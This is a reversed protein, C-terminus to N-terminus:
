SDKRAIKLRLLSNKIKRTIQFLRLFASYFLPFNAKKMTVKRNEPYKLMQLNDGLFLRLLNKPIIETRVTCSFIVYM